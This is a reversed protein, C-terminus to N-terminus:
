GYFEARMHDDLTPANFALTAPNISGPMAADLGPVLALGARGLGSAEAVDVREQLLSVEGDSPRTFWTGWTEQGFGNATLYDIVEQQSQYNAYRINGDAHMLARLYATGDTLAFYVEQIGDRNYDNAGLVRNINEIELDNQFRRQSDNASGAQVIGAEVLPDIYIGAVRTEGAWGHDAFYVLGDPATGVTAFRGINRNVLIQDIDGDGNLDAQGIRLWGGNGGLANGDFDRIANMASQYVARDATNFSVTVGTGPRLRLTQDDFQLFEIATLTDTGDAGVVRFVGTSTQTVTYASRLGRVVATDVNSGGNLTDNGRMGSIRDAGTGGIIQDNSNSGRIDYSEFGNIQVLHQTGDSLTLPYLFFGGNESRTTTLDIFLGDITRGDILTGSFDISLVDNGDGGRLRTPLLSSNYILVDDGSGLEIQAIREFGTFQLNGVSNRAANVDFASLDITQDTSLQELDLVLTDLGQGGVAIGEAIQFIIIDDGNGGGISASGGIVIALDDGDGASFNYNGAYGQFYDNGGLGFYEGAGGDSRLLDNRNSGTMEFREFNHFYTQQFTGDLYYITLIRSGLSVYDVNGGFARGSSFDTVLLDNGERGDFFWGGNTLDGLRLVDNYDTLSGGVSEINEIDAGLISTQTSLDLLVGERLAALDFVLRDFGEGGDIIADQDEVYITDDGAGAFVSDRGLGGFILDNGAGGFIVDDGGESRLDDAGDGGSLQDAGAAGLLSDDGDLGRLNGGLSGAILRDNGNTGTVDFIEFSEYFSDVYGDAHYSRIRIYGQTVFDFMDISSVTLPNTWDWGFGDANLAYVESDRLDLVARDTGAGGINYQFTSGSIFTDDGPGFAGSAIELNLWLTEGLTGSLLDLVTDTTRHSLDFSVLDVGDGGDIFVAGETGSQPYAQFFDNGGGGDWYLETVQESDYFNDDGGNGFVIQGGLSDAGASGLVVIREISLLRGLSDGDSSVVFGSVNNNYSIGIGNENPIRSLDVIATDFGALGDVIFFDRTQPAVLLADDSATPNLTATVDDDSITFSATALYQRAPQDPSSQVILGFTELAEARNDDSVLVTVQVQSQGALFTVQQNLLGQYDSDNRSGRDFTTSVFVTEANAANPRSITFTISGVNESVFRSSPSITFSGPSSITTVPLTPPAGAGPGAGTLINLPTGGAVGDVQIIRQWGYQTGAGDADVEIYSVGNASATRVLLERSQGGSGFHAFLATLDIVDGENPDFLGSNGQNYDQIIELQLPGFAVPGADFIFRDGGQSGVYTDAGSGGDLTDNGQDGVLTDGGQGGYLFDDGDEGRLTDFGAEGFLQDSGSGGYLVDGDNGGYIRDNGGDGRLDDVQGGGFITDAGEGGFIRDRGTNGALRDAYASGFITDDGGYGDIIVGGPTARADVTEGPLGGFFNFFPAPNSPMAGNFGQWINAIYISFVQDAPIEAFVQSAELRRLEDIYQGLGHAGIDLVPFHVNDWLILDNLGSRDSGVVAVPDNQHRIIMFRNGSGVTMGPSGFGYGLSAFAYYNLAEAALAGGLSHGTTVVQYSAGLQSLYGSLATFVADFASLEPYLNDAGIGPYSLIGDQGLNDTGRFVIALQGTQDNRAIFMANEGPLGLNGGFDPSDNRFIGDGDVLIDLGSFSYRQAGYQTTGM